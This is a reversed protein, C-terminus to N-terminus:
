ALQKLREEISELTQRALSKVPWLFFWRLIPSLEEAVAKCVLTVKEEGASNLTFTIRQVLTILDWKSKAILRVSLAEPPSIDTTEGRLRMILPIGFTRAKLEARFNNEDMVEMKELGHLSNLIVKGLLDWVREQSAEVSFKKEAILTEM